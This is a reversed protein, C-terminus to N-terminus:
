KRNIEEEGDEIENTKIFLNAGNSHLWRKIHHSPSPFHLIEEQISKSQNSKDRQILIILKEEMEESWVGPRASIAGNLQASSLRNM